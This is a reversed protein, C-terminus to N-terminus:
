VSGEWIKLSDKARIMNEADPTFPLVLRQNRIPCTWTMFLSGNKSLYALGRVGNLERHWFEDYLYIGNSRSKALVQKIESLKM